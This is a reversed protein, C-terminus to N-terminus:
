RVPQLNQLPCSQNSCNLIVPLLYVSWKLESDEPSIICKKIPAGPEIPRAVLKFHRWTFSNDRGALQPVTVSCCFVCCRPLFSASLSSSHSTFFLYVPSQLAAIFELCMQLASYWGCAPLPSRFTANNTNAHLKMTRESVDVSEPEALIPFGLSWREM